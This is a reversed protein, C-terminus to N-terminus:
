NFWILRLSCHDPYYKSLGSLLAMIKSEPNSKESINRKKECDSKDMLWDFVRHASKAKELSLSGSLLRGNIQIAYGDKLKVIM